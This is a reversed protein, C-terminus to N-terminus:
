EGVRESGAPRKEGCTIVFTGFARGLGVKEWCWDAVNYVGLLANLLRPAVARYPIDSQCRQCVNVFYADHFAMRLRKPLLPCENPSVGESRYLPSRPHRFAAMAPHLLNPDFAFAQGGSKLVRWGQRLAAPFEAIHHLVSSYAVVDFSADAFPLALADAVLWEDHPFRERAVAIAQESLDVGVYHGLHRAYIQRSNGTGCGIDLLTVPSTPAIMEDFRRALTQWGRDTFPNFEGESAVLQNFFASESQPSTSGNKM